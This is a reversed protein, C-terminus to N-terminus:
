GKYRLVRGRPHFKKSSPGPIFRLRRGFRFYNLANTSDSEPAILTVALTDGLHYKGNEWKASQEYTGEYEEMFCCLTRHRGDYGRKKLERRSSVGNLFIHCKNGEGLVLRDHRSEFTLTTSSHASHYRYHGICASLLFLASPLVPLRSFVM